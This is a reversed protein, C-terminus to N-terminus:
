LGRAALQCRAPRLGASYALLIIFPLSISFIWQDHGIHRFIRPSSQVHLSYEIDPIAAYLHLFLIARAFRYYKGTHRYETLFRFFISLQQIRSLVSLRINFKIKHKKGDLLTKNDFISRIRRFYVFLQHKPLLLKISTNPQKWEDCNCHM